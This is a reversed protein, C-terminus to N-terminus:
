LSKDASSNSSDRGAGTKAGGTAGSISSEIGSTIDAGATDVAGATIGVAGTTRFLPDVPKIGPAEEATGVSDTFLGSSPTTGRSSESFSNLFRGIGSNFRIAM